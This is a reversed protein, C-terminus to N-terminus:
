ILLTGLANNKDIRVIRVATIAALSKLSIEPKYNLLPHLAHRKLRREM